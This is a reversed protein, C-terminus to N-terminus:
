NKIHVNSKKEPLWNQGMAMNLRSQLELQLQESIFVPGTEMSRGPNSRGLFTVAPNVPGQWLQTFM